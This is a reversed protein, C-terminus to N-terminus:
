ETPGCNVLGNVLVQPHHPLMADLGLAILCCQAWGKYLSAANRGVRTCHPLMADLGLAICTRAVQIWLTQLCSVDRVELRGIVRLSSDKFFKNRIDFFYHENFRGARCCNSLKSADISHDPSQQIYATYM